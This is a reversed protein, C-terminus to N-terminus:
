QKELFIDNMDSQPITNNKVFQEVVDRAFTVAKIGEDLSLM